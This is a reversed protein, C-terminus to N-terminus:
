RSSCHFRCNCKQVPLDCLDGHKCNLRQAVSFFAGLLVAGSIKDLVATASQENSPDLVQRELADIARLEQKRGYFRVQGTGNTDAITAADTLEITALRSMFARRAAPSLRALGARAAVVPQTLDTYAAGEPDGFILADNYANAFLFEEGGHTRWRPTEISAYKDLSTHMSLRKAMRYLRREQEGQINLILEKLAAIVSNRLTVASDHVVIQAAAPLSMGIILVSIIFTRRM